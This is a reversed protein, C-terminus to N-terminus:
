ARTRLGFPMLLCDNMCSFFTAEPYRFFVVAVRKWQWWAISVPSWGNSGNATIALRYEESGRGLEVYCAGLLISSLNSLCWLSPPPWPYQRTGCLFSMSRWVMLSFLFHKYFIILLQCFFSFSFAMYTDRDLGFCKKKKQTFHEPVWGRVGGM